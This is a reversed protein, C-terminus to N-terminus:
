ASVVSADGTSIASCATTASRWYSAIIDAAESVAAQVPESLEEGFETCLPAIGMILVLAQTEATLYDALTKLSLTHTSGGTEEAEITDFWRISGPTLGNRVIDIFIILTPGFRIIPGLVNEPAHGGDILLLNDDLTFLQRLRRIVAPGAGDDSRLVQGVGVVALRIADLQNPSLNSRTDLHSANLTM